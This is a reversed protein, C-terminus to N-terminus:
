NRSGWLFVLLYIASDTTETKCIFLYVTLYSAITGCIASSPNLVWAMQSLKLASLWGVPRESRTQTRWQDWESSFSYSLFSAPYLPSLDCRSNGIVVPHKISPEQGGRGRAKERGIAELKELNILSSYNYGLVVHGM